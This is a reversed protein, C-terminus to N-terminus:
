RLVTLKRVQLFKGAKMRMFYVGSPVSRGNHDAGHWELNYYGAEQREDVLTFVVQGVLNFVQLRVHEDSPLGYKIMTTPNFPNPYNQALFLQDPAKKVLKVRAIAQLAPGDNVFFDQLFILSSDGARGIARFTISVFEDTAATMTSDARVLSAYLSGAALKRELKYGTLAENKEVRVVALQRAEFDLHLSAKKINQKSGFKLPLTLQEGPALKLDPMLPPKKAKSLMGADTIIKKVGTASGGLVAVYNQTVQNGNVRLPLPIFFWQGARGTDPRSNTFYYELLGDDGAASGLDSRELSNDCNVDLSLFQYRDLKISKNEVAEDILERIADIELNKNILRQGTDKTKFPTLTLFSNFTTSIVPYTGDAQTTAQVTNNGAFKLKVESIPEGNDPDPVLYVVKGKVMKPCELMTMTSLEASNDVDGYLIGDFSLEVASYHRLKLHISDPAQYFKAPLEAGANIFTWDKNNPFILCKDSGAKIGILEGDTKKSTMSTGTTITSDHNVDAAIAKYVDLKSTSAIQGGSSAGSALTEAASVDAMTIAGNPVGAHVVTVKYNDDARLNDFVAKGNASPQELFPQGSIPGCRELRVVAGDIPKAPDGFYNLAVTLKFSSLTASFPIKEDNTEPDSGEEETWSFRFVIDEIPAGDFKNKKFTFPFDIGTAQGAALSQIGQPLPKTAIVSAPGFDTLVQASISVPATGSAVGNKVVLRVNLKETGFTTTLIRDAATEDLEIFADSSNATALIFQETGALLNPPQNKNLGGPKETVVLIFRLSDPMTADRTTFVYPSLSTGTKDRPIPDFTSTNSDIKAGVLVNATAQDFIRLETYLRGTTEAGINRLTLRLRIKELRNIVQNKGLRGDGILPQDDIIAVVFDLEGSRAGPTAPAEQFAFNLNESTEDHGSIGNFGPCREEFERPVQRRQWSKLIRHPANVIPKQRDPKTDAKYPTADSNRDIGDVRLNTKDVALPCAASSDCWVVYDVDKVVDSSDPETSKKGARGTKHIAIWNFFIVQEHNDDLRLTDGAVFADLKMNPVLPDDATDALVIEYNPERNYLKRFQATNLAVTRYQQPGIVVTDGAPFHAIFDGREVTLPPAGPKDKNVIQTYNNGDSDTLYYGDLSVTDKLSPNFIEIFEAFDPKICIESILLHNPPTNELLNIDGISPRAQKCYNGPDKLPRKANRERDYEYSFGEEGPCNNPGCSSSAAGFIIATDILWLGARVANAEIGDIPSGFQIFDVMKCFAKSQELNNPEFNKVVALAFPQFNSAGGLQLATSDPTANENAFFFGDQAPAAPNPVGTNFILQSPNDERRALWNVVLLRGAPFNVDPFKWFVEQGDRKFWLAYNALNISVTTDNKLEIQEFGIDPGVPAYLIENIVISGPKSEEKTITITTDCAAKCGNIDQIACAIRINNIGNTLPVSRSVPNDTVKTGDQLKLTDNIVWYLIRAGPLAIQAEVPLLDACTTRQNAAPSLVTINCTLQKVTINFRCYAKNGSFDEVICSVMTLGVPFNAGSRTRISDEMGSRNKRIAFYGVSKIGCADSSDQLAFVARGSDPTAACFVADPQCMTRPPTRDISIGQVVFPKRPITDNSVVFLTDVIEGRQAPMFRVMFGISDQPSLMTDRPAPTLVEFAGARIHVSDIKLTCIGSNKLMIQKTTAGGCETTDFVIPATITAEGVDTVFILFTKSAANNHRDTATCTVGTFGKPFKSGSRVPIRAGNAGQITCAPTIAVGDCSDFATVTFPVIASDKETTCAIISAIGFPPDIPPPVTLVPPTTDQAAASLPLSFKPRDPDNSVIRLTDLFSGILDAGFRVDFKLSDGAALTTDNRPSYSLNFVSPRSKFKISDLKLTALGENRLTVTQRKSKKCDVIAFDIPSSPIVVLKPDAEVIVKFSCSSLAPKGAADKATVMVPTEGLLFFHPQEATIEKVVGMATVTFIPNIQADCDDVVTIRKKEGIEKAAYKKLESLTITRGIQRNANRIPDSVLLSDNPAGLCAVTPPGDDLLKGELSFFSANSELPEDSSFEIQDIKGIYSAPDSPNPDFEVLLDYAAHFQGPDIQVPFDSAAFAAKTGNPLLKFLRYVANANSALRIRDIELKCNGRSANKLKVTKQFPRNATAGCKEAFAFRNLPMPTAESSFLQLRAIRADSTSITIEPVVYFRPNYDAQQPNINEPKDPCLLATNNRPIPSELLVPKKDEVDNYYFFLQWDNIQSNFTRYFPIIKFTYNAPIPGVVLGDTRNLPWSWRVRVKRKAPDNPITQIDIEKKDTSIDCDHDIRDDDDDRIANTVFLGRIKAEDTEPVIFEFLAEQQDTLQSAGFRNHIIFLYSNNPEQEQEYFFMVTTNPQSLAFASSSNQNAPPAASRVTENANYNYYQRFTKESRVPYIQACPGNPRSFTYIMQAEAETAALLMGLGIWRWKAFISNPNTM